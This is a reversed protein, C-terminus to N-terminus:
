CSQYAKEHTWLIYSIKNYYQMLQYALNETIHSYEMKYIDVTEIAFKSYTEVSKDLMVM